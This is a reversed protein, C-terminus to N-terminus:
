RTNCYILTKGLNFPRKRLFSNGMERSCRPRRRLAFDDVAQRADSWRSRVPPTASLHQRPRRDVGPASRARHALTRQWRGCAEPRRLAFHVMHDAAIRGFMHAADARKLLDIQASAM